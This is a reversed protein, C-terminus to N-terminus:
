RKQLVYVMRSTFFEQVFPFLVLPHAIKCVVQQITGKWGSLRYNYYITPRPYFYEIHFNSENVINQFKRVTMWNIHYFEENGEDNVRIKQNIRPIGDPYAKALEKYVRLLTERSFFIHIWPIHIVDNLHHGMLDYIPPVVIFMRGGKKLVRASESLVKKPNEVHEMSDYSTIMDFSCDDFPLEEAEHNVFVVNKVKKYRAFKIAEKIWHTNIDLGTVMKAGITAYYVTRGGLGCGIDLVEKNLIYEEMKTFADFFRFFEPGNEFAESSYTKKHISYDASSYPSLLYPDPVNKYRRGLSLLLKESIKM